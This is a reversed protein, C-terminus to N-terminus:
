LNYKSFDKEAKETSLKMISNIKSFMNIFRQLTEKDLFALAEPNTALYNAVSYHNFSGNPHMKINQDLLTRKLRELIRDNEPLDNETIEQGNLKENFASNFLKLYTNVTFIDEIDTSLAESEQNGRFMSFNIVNKDQIIKEKKLSELHQNPKKSYDHLVLFKLDNGKLLAIFSAVKDLGGAPVIVIEHNLYDKELSELYHSIVKLYLLDSVGEVVLNYKSIFLNQAITYGLAAQLPFITDANSSSINESIVTGTKIKDEVVRVQHLKESKVMFPSHTTYLIQHKKSLFDIYNLFDEQAKAHLSLGPEDLLLILDKNEQIQSKISDFWVMFSFFWIFGKSRQSFPVTVRHRRNKVRIYLNNGNNFPAVDTPDQRIDIEVDLETNQKWYEFVRDTIQNSIGELKAKINEYSRTANLEDVDIEAMRLLGLIAKDSINLTKNTKRQVLENINKKGPLLHYDDFYLFAPFFESILTWVKYEVLNAWNTAAGFEAKLKAFFTSSEQNKDTKELYDIIAKVSKLKLCESKLDDTLPAKSFTEKIYQSEPISISITRKNDYTYNITLSLEKLLPFGFHKNIKELDLQELTYELKAVVAPNTKHVSEYQSLKRRPYDETVDYKNDNISNAKDLAMLFATKGSENQGVLVNIEPDIKVQGSNEICRFNIIEAKSLKM